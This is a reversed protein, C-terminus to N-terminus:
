EVNKSYNRKDLVSKLEKLIDIFAETKPHKEGDKTYQLVKKQYHGLYEVKRLHTNILFIRSVMNDISKPFNTKEIESKGTM